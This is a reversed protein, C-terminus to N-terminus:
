ATIIKPIAPTHSMEVKTNYDLNSVTVIKQHGITM